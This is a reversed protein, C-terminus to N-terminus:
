NMPKKITVLLAATDMRLFYLEPISRTSLYPLIIICSFFDNMMLYPQVEYLICLKYINLM